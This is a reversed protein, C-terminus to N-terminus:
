ELFYRFRRPRRSVGHHGDLHGGLGRRASGGVLALGGDRLAERVVVIADREPGSLLLPAAVVSWLCVVAMTLFALAMTLAHMFFLAMLGSAVVATRPLSMKGMRRVYYGAVLPFMAMGLYFNYFGIWLFQTCILFNLIPSWPSVRPALSRIFYALSVFGLVSCLTVMAQEAHQVGFLFVLGNFVVVTGWNSVFKRQIAYVAGYSSHSDLALDKVVVANYLHSPGDQTVFHKATWPLAAHAVMLAFALAAPVANWFRPRSLRVSDYMGAINAGSVCAVRLTSMVHERLNARDLTKIIPCYDRLRLGGGLYDLSAHPRWHRPRRANAVFQGLVIQHAEHGGRKKRTQGHPFDATRKLVLVAGLLQLASEKGVKAILHPLPAEVLGM